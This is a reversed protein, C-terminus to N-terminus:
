EMLNDLDNEQQKLQNPFCPIGTITMYSSNLIQFSQKMITYLNALNNMICSKSDKTDLKFSGDQDITLEMNENTLFIDGDKSVQLTVKDNKWEMSGDAETTCFTHDNNWKIQGENDTTLIVHNHDEYGIKLTVKGNDLQIFNKHDDPRFQNALIAIGSTYSHGTAEIDIITETKDVDFMDAHSISPYIVVVKDNENPVIEVSMSKSAFNALVCRMIRVDRKTKAVSIEVDVVGRAVVKKIIGYDIDCRRDMIAEIANLLNAKKSSQLFEADM